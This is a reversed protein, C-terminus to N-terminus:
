RARARLSALLIPELAEPLEDARLVSPSLHQPDNTAVAHEPDVGRVRVLSVRGGGPGECTGREGTGLPTGLPVPQRVGSGTYERGSWTMTDACSASEDGVVESGGGSCGCAAVVLAVPPALRIVLPDPAIRAPGAHSGARVRRTM